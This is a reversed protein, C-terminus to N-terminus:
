PAPAIRMLFDDESYYQASRNAAPNYPSTACQFPGSAPMVGEDRGYQRALLQPGINGPGGNISLTVLQDGSSSMAGGGVPCGGWMEFGSDVAITTGTLDVVSTGACMGCCSAACDNSYSDARAHGFRMYNPPPNISASTTITAYTTDTIDVSSTRLDIRIREYKTELQEMDNPEWRMANAGGAVSANTAPLTVYARYVARPAIGPEYTAPRGAPTVCLVQQSESPDRDLHLTAGREGSSGIGYWLAIEQCTLFRPINQVTASSAYALQLVESSPNPMPPSGQLTPDGLCTQGYQQARGATSVYGCEPGMPGAGGSASLSLDVVQDGQSTTAALSAAAVCEGSRDFGDNIIFPTNRLDLKGLASEMSSGLAGCSKASAYPARHEPGTKGPQYYLTHSYSFDEIDVLLTVPDIRVMWFATESLLGAEDVMQFRNSLGSTVGLPLYTKPTPSSLQTCVAWWPKSLDGGVSLRYFNDQTKGAAKVQACSAYVQAPDPSCVRDGSTDECLEYFACANATCARRCTLNQDNDQFGTDCQCTPAGSANLVCVGRGNPDGVSQGCSVGACTDIPVCGGAGDDMYGAACEDCTTAAPAPRMYGVDCTCQAVGSSDDCVGHPGCDGPISAPCSLQCVGDLDNDQADPRCMECREGDNSPMCECEAEGSANLVCTGAPGCDIPACVDSMDAPMSMDEPAAMDTMDAPMAMDPRMDVRMMDAARMDSMDSMDDPRMDAPLSMDESAMDQRMDAPPSMDVLPMAMDAAPMDATSMDLAPLMDQEASSEGFVSRGEREEDVEFLCATHSLTLAALLFVPIKRM